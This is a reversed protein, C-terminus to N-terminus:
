PESIPQDEENEEDVLHNSRKGKRVKMVKGKHIKKSSTPNSPKKKMPNSQKGPAPQIPKDAKSATKKKGGEKSTPKRAVRELYKEYNQIAETILEQPIPKGFVEDKEGKPIFKLNGLLFDDGTVYVPSMHRKHINHQFEGRFYTNIQPLKRRPKQLDPLSQAMQKHTAIGKGKREVVLLQRTIEPIPERIAVGGIPAQFSELSMQIGRQLNYEDDEKHIKKSSTPNSPKKKMPKSQKGPALQIPKDAKSATKKKGGEKSTPKHAVLLQLVPYKPKDNRSTKGTLCQNILSLIARWPQYLNNVHMKSVFHIEKPYGLKNVFDMVHEGAPPLEFPHASDIPTIDLAKRLLGANLTFWQKDQQFTYVETKADHIFTNWFQQIYITPVNAQLLLLLFMRNMWRIM